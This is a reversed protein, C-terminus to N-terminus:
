QDLPSKVGAVGRLKAMHTYIMTTELSPHGLLEQVSRIDAGNKLFHTAFSHRLGHCNVPKRLAARQAAAKPLTDSCLM